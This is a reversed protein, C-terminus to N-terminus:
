LDGPDCDLDYPNCPTTVRMCGLQTYTPPNVWYAEENNPCCRQDIVVNPNTKSYGFHAGESDPNCCEWINLSHCGGCGTGQICKFRVESPNSCTRNVICEEGPEIFGGTNAAFALVSASAMMCVTTALRKQSM